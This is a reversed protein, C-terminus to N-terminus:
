YDAVAPMWQKDYCDCLAYQAILQEGRALGGPKQPRALRRQAAPGIGAEERRAPDPPAARAPELLLVQQAAHSRALVPRPRGPGSRKRPSGTAAKLLREDTSAKRLISCCQEGRALRNGITM